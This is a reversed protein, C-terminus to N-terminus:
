EKTKSQWRSSARIWSKAPYEFKFWNKLLGSLGPMRAMSDPEITTLLRIRLVCKNM